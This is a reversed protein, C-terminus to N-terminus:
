IVSVQQKIDGNLQLFRSM